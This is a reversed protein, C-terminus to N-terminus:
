YGLGRDIITGDIANITFQSNNPISSADQTGEQDNLTMESNGFFDWVPVLLGSRSDQTPSYIRTYGLTIRDVTVKYEKLYENDMQSSVKYQMMETYIQKIEEFDLLKVNEVQTEGMEYPSAYSLEELGNKSVVIQLTEYTWPEITSDMDELGGGSSLTYTIPTNGIQRTYYFMYGTNSVQIDEGEMGRYMYVAYDWTGIEMDTVGIAAMKDDAIKKAEEYSIGASSEMEDESGIQSAIDNKAFQYEAWGAGPQAAENEGYHNVRVRISDGAGESIRYTYPEPTEVVGSFSKFGSEDAALLPSVEKKEATEPAEAYAAELEELMNQLDERSIGDGDESETSSQAMEAKIKNIEKQCDDKTMVFYSDSSYIKGEPFLGQTIRDMFEQTLPVASVEITSFGQTEPLEIVADTTLTVKGDELVVEDQFREPVGLKERLGQQKEGTSEQTDDEQYQEIAEKGKPKVIASDPTEQCGSLLVTSSLLVTFIYTSKRNM